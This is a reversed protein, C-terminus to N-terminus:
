VFGELNMLFAAAWQGKVATLLGPLRIFPSVSQDLSKAASDFGM